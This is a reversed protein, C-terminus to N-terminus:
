LVATQLERLGSGYICDTVFAVSFPM